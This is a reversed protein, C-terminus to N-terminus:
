EKGQNEIYAKVVSLSVSGVTCVFSSRSWFQGKWLHKQKIEPFESFLRFGTVSKLRSVCKMIGYRPNCAILVHVHDKDTEIEIITFDHAKAVEFCLEKLRSAIVQKAFLRKRYKPCLIVHYKCDFVLHSSVLYPSKATTM